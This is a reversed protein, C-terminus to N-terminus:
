RQSCGPYRTIFKTRRPATSFLCVREGLVAGDILDIEHMKLSNLRDEVKERSGPLFSARIRFAKSGLRLDLSAPQIQEPDIPVDSTISGVEILKEIEQNPLVGSM